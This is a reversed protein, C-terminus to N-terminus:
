ILSQPCKGLIGKMSHRIGILMYRLKKWRNKEFCLVIFMRKVVEITWHWRQHHKKGIYLYNRAIYYLRTPSHHLVSMQHHFPLPIKKGHGVEQLLQISNVRLIKYGADKIKLCFDFDVGDIFLEESFRGAKKWASLRVLNGATICQEIEDTEQHSPNYEAGMNRDVISPCVIGIDEEHTYLEYEDISHPPMVSDQDLTVFWKYGQEEACEAIQNLACAIGENEQNEVLVVQPYKSALQQIDAINSSHNDIIFLHGAQQNALASSINEQLRQRDPQYTVIGIAYSM